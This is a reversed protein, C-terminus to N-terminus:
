EKVISINKYGNEGKVKIFYMGSVLGTMDIEIGNKSVQRAGKVSHPKGYADYLLLGKISIVDNPLYITTRGRAPNPYVNVNGAPKAETQAIEKLQDQVDALTANSSAARVGPTVTSCKNSKYSASASETEIANGSYTKVAWTLTSGDFPVLFKTTGNGPLFVTVQRSGDFANPGNVSSLMNNSGIPVYVTVANTNKSYFRAVYRRNAPIYSAGRDEVCELYVDVDDVGSGKPNIYLKGNTVTVAYNTAVLSPIISYVGAAGACTPSLSYTVAPNDTYKLGTITSTFVPLADGKFIFKDDAKIQLAAKTITFPNIANFSLSYNNGAVLSGIAFSYTGVNNGAARALAGTFDAAVLGGNNTLTFVPDPSGYVKTQGPTPTVIVPKVTIAFTSIPAIASLLLSYNTGASLNGLTYAYTGVDSGSVRSIAGTFAPPM